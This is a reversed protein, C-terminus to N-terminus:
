PLEEGDLQMTYALMKALVFLIACEAEQWIRLNRPEACLLYGKTRNDETSIKVAVLTEVERKKMLECFFPATKRISELDNTSFLYDATMLNGIDSVPGIVQGRVSHLVGGKGAYYLDTVQLEEMILPTVARLKNLLGPVNEYQRVLSSLTTYMGHRAIQRIEINAHKETVYIIYCNRGKSKGRYLTRDILDFLADFDEADKPFTACGITGTIYPECEKLYVNKRLVKGEYIDTLMQKNADYTVDRLNIFLFEDGGYRGAIGFGELYGALDEAVRCLVADGVHHGYTDNIFKFNDLDLMGLSFPIRHEILWQAVWLIHGRSIIGTLPDLLNELEMEQLKEDFYAYKRLQERTYMANVRKGDRDGSKPQGCKM